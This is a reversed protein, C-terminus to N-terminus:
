GILKLLAKLDRDSLIPNGFEQPITFKEDPPNTTENENLFNVTLWSKFIDICKSIYVILNDLYESKSKDILTAVLIGFNMEKTTSPPLM